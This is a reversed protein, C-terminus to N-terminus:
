TRDLSRVQRLMRLRTGASTTWRAGFRWLAPVAMAAMRCYLAIFIIAPLLVGAGAHAASGFQGHDAADTMQKSVTIMHALLSPCIMALEYAFWAFMLISCVAYVVLVAQARARLGSAEAWSAWHRRILMTKLARWSAQRLNTVGVADNLTWYIDFRGFPNLAWVLNGLVLLTALVLFWIHFIAGIIAYGAGMGVEFALGAIDVVVRQRRPLLWARTVDCYVAPFVLYLAFGIDGPRIGYRSCATAHGLEHACLALLFAAYAAFFSSETNLHTGIDHSPGSTVFAFVAFGLLFVYAIGAQVGLLPELLRAVKGVAREPLIRIRFAYRKRAKARALEIEAGVKALLEDCAQAIIAPDAEAGFTAHILLAIQQPELGERLRSFLWYASPSMRLCCGESVECAISQEGGVADLWAAEPTKGDTKEEHNVAPRTARRRGRSKAATPADAGRGLQFPM